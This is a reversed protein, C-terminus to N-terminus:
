NEPIQTSFLADECLFSRRSYHIVRCSLRRRNGVVREHRAAMSKVQRLSYNEADEVVRNRLESGSYLLIALSPLVALLVLLILSRRIPGLFLFRM